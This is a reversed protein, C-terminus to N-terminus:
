KIFRIEIGIKNNKSFTNAKPKTSVNENRIGDFNQNYEMKFVNQRKMKESKSIPHENKIFLLSM